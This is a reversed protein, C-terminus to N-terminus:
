LEYVSGIFKGLESTCEYKRLALELLTTKEMYTKM